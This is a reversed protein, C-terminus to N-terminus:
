KRQGTVLAACCHEKNSGTQTIRPLRRGELHESFYHIKRKGYTFVLLCIKFCKTQVIINLEINVPTSLVHLLSPSFRGHSLRWQPAPDGKGGVISELGLHCSKPDGLASVLGSLPVTNLAPPSLTSTALAVTDTHQLPSAGSIM